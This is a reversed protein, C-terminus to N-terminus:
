NNNDIKGVRVPRITWMWKKTEKIKTMMMAVRVGRSFRTIRMDKKKM